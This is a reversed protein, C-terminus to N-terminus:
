EKEPQNLSYGLGRTAKLEAQTGLFTLKRRLFTIYVAVNNYESEDALGWVHEAITEKPLIQGPHRMLLEMLQYEKAGLRVSQGTAECQLSADEPHLTLDAFHLGNEPADGKRRTIAHLCALLEAKEFPKPLYYDAGGELGQVRDQLGGRATLMLVPTANQKGRLRRLVTFGDMKPLMVDLIVVDYIGSEAYDLGSQGDHVADTKYGSEELIRCLAQALRVDDEVVLIQM